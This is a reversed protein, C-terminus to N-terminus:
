SSLFEFFNKDVRGEEEEGEKFVYGVDACMPLVRGGKNVGGKKRKKKRGEREKEREREM